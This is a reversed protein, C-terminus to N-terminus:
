QELISLRWPIAGSGGSPEIKFIYPQDKQFSGPGGISIVGGDVTVTPQAISGAWQVDFKSTGSQLKFAVYEVEQGGDSPTLFGCISASTGIAVNPLTNATGATNNPEVEAVGGVVCPIGGEPGGDVFLTSPQGADFLYSPTTDTVSTEQFTGTDTGGGSDTGTTVDATTADSGADGAPVAAPDDSDSCAAAVVAGVLVGAVAAIRLSRPGVRM